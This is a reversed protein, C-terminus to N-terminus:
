KSSNFFNHFSIVTILKNLSIVVICICTQNCIIIIRSVM